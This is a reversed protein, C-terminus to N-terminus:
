KLEAELVRFNSGSDETGHLKVLKFGSKDLLSLWQKKSREM